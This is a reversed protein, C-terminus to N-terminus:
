PGDLGYPKLRMSIVPRRTISPSFCCTIPGLYRSHGHWPSSLQRLRLPRPWSGIGPSRSLTGSTLKGSPTQRIKAPPYVLYFQRMQQLNQRSFGRGLRGGLDKALRELLAEGYGARGKGGQEFEVIRRGIEWYTATLLTNASRAAQRRADGLLQRIGSVLNGYGGPRSTTM